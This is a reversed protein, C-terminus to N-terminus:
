GLRGLGYWWKGEKIGYLNWMGGYDGEFEIMWVGELLVRKM